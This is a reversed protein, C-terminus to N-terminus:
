FNRWAASSTGSRWTQVVATASVTVGYVSSGDTLYIADNSYPAHTMRDIPIGRSNFVICATGTYTSSSASGTDNLCAPAQGIASQTSSPPSSLTGYGFSVDKSLINETPTINAACATDGEAVWCNSTKNWTEVRYTGASLDVYVRAETFDAAARMKALAIDGAISRIDGGTRFNQAMSLILPIAMAALVVGIVLTMMLEILSFGQPESRYCGNGRGTHSQM